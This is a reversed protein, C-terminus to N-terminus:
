KQLIVTALHVNEAVIQAQVQLQLRASQLLLKAAAVTFIINVVVSVM